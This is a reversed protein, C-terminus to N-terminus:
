RPECEHILELSTRATRSVRSDPDAAARKLLDEATRCRMNGLARACANRICADTATLGTKIPESLRTDTLSRIGAAVMERIYWKEHHIRSILDALIGPDTIRGIRSVANQRVTWDDCKLDWLILTVEDMESRKKKM